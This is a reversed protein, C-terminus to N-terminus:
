ELEQVPQNSVASDFDLTRPQNIFIKLKKPGKDSPAKIKLSHLKIAQNFAVSIILQLLHFFMLVSVILIISISCLIVAIFLNVCQYLHEGARGTAKGGGQGGGWIKFAWPYM